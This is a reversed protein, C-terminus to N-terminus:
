THLFVRYLSVPDSYFVLERKIAEVRSYLKIIKKLVEPTDTLASDALQMIKEYAKKGEIILDKILTGTELLITGEMMEYYRIFM